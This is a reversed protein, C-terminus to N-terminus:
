KYTKLDFAICARFEKSNNKCVSHNCFADFVVLTGVSCPIVENYDELFLEGSSEDAQLYLVASLVNKTEGDLHNHRIVSTGPHSISMWYDETYVLEGYIKSCLDEVLNKIYNLQSMHVLSYEVGQIDNDVSGEEHRVSPLNNIVTSLIDKASEVTILKVIVSNRM